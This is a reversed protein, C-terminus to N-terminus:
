NSFTNNVFDLRRMYRRSSTYNTLPANYIDGTHASVLIEPYQDTASSTYTVYVSHAYDGTSSSNFQLVDGYNISLPAINTYVNGNNYGIAKPGNGTNTTVYNWFAQVSEWAPMGGGTGAHWTNNIMRFKNSINAKTATESTSGEVYGGYAAWVCQSVFNTCDKNATYFWRDNKDMMAFRQAYNRGLMNNYTVNVARISTAPEEIEEEIVETHEKNKAYLIFELEDHIINNIMEENAEKLSYESASNSKKYNDIMEVFCQYGYDDTELNTIIFEGAIDKELYLKYYVNRIGSQIDQSVNYNHKSSMLLEVEAGASTEKLSLYEVTIKSNLQKVNWLQNSKVSYEISKLYELTFENKEIVGDFDPINLEELSDFYIDFFKKVTERISLNSENLIIKDSKETINSSSNVELNNTASASFCFCGMVITIALSLSILNKIKRM